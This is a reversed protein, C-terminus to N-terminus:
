YQEELKWLLQQALKRSAEVLAAQESSRQNEISATSVPYDQWASLTGKWLPKTGAPANRKKVTVEASISLRYEQAADVKNYSVVGAGYGNFVGEVMLDASDASLAPMVSRMEAFQDYLSRRLTVAGNAYATTNSFFSVWVTQGKQLRGPADATFHYGACGTMVAFCIVLVLQLKSRLLLTLWHGQSM